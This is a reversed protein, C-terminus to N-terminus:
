KGVIMMCLAEMEHRRAPRELSLAHFFGEDVLGHQQCLVAARHCTEAWSATPGPLEGEIATGGPGLRLWRRLSSTDFCHEFIAHLASLHDVELYTIVSGVLPSRTRVQVVLAEWAAEARRGDSARRYHSTCTKRINSIRGAFLRHVGRTVRGPLLTRPLHGNRQAWRVAQILVRGGHEEYSVASTRGSRSAGRQNVGSTAGKPAQTPLRPRTSSTCSRSARHGCSAAQECKRRM